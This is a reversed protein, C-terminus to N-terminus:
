RIRTKQKKGQLSACHLSPKLQGKVSVGFKRETLACYSHRRRASCEFLGVDKKDTEYISSNVLTCALAHVSRGHKIPDDDDILPCLLSSKAVSSRGSFSIHHM